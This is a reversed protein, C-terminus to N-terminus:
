QSTPNDNIKNIISSIERIKDEMEIGTFIDKADILFKQAVEETEKEQLLINGLDLLNDALGEKNEILKNLEMAKNLNTIANEKDEKTLCIKSKIDYCSSLGRNDKNKENIEFAKTLKKEALCINNKALYIRSLVGYNFAISPLYDLKTNIDVSKSIFNEAEEHRNMILLVIALNGYNYALPRLGYENLKKAYEIGKLHFNYAEEVKGLKRTIVGLNGYTHALGEDSNLKEHLNIAKKLIKRADKLKGQFRFLTGINSYNYSIQYIGQDGLKESITISKKFYSIASDFNRESRELIGLNSLAYALEKENNQELALEEARNFMARAHALRHSRRLFRGYRNIAYLNPRGVVANAFLAESDTLKGKSAFNEARKVLERPDDVLINSEIKVLNSDFGLSNINKIEKKKNSESERIWNSLHRKIIKSFEEVTDFSEYLFSKNEELKKRFNIVKQLQVGPDSMQRLEVGKFLVIIDKMPMNNITLCELAVYFEEETGSSYDTSNAPPTGWRDWLLLFMYDCKKLDNNIKEQPRGKGGLTEEWGIPIFELKRSLAEDESYERLTKKFIKRESELGGPCAIFINFGTIQVTM